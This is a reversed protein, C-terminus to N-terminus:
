TKGALRYPETLTLDFPMIESIMVGPKAGGLKELAEGNQEQALIAAFKEAEKRGPFYLTWIFRYDPDSASVLGSRCHDLEARLLGVASAENDVLLDNLAAEAAECM